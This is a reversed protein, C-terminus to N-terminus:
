NIQNTESISKNIRKSYETMEIKDNRNSERNAPEIETISSKNSSGM